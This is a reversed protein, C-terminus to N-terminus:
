PRNRDLHDRIIPDLIITQEMRGVAIAWTAGQTVVDPDACIAVWAGHEGDTEYRLTLSYERSPESM